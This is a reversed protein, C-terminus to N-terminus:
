MKRFSTKLDFGAAIIKEANTQFKPGDPFGFLDTMLSRWSTHFDKDNDPIYQITNGKSEADINTKIDSLVKFLDMIFHEEMGTDFLQWPRTESCIYTDGNRTFYSIHYVTENVAIIYEISKTHAYQNDNFEQKPSVCETTAYYFGLPSEHIIDDYEAKNKDNKHMNVYSLHVNTNDKATIIYYYAPLICNNMMRASSKHLKWEGSTYKCVTVQIHCKNFLTTKKM